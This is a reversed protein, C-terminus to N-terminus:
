GRSYCELEVENRFRDAQRKQNEEARMAGEAYADMVIKRLLEKHEAPHDQRQLTELATSLAGENQRTRMVELAFDGLAKCQDEAQASASTAALMAGAFIVGFRSKSDTPKLM